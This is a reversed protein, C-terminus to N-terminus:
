WMASVTALPLLRMVNQLCQAGTAAGDDETLRAASFVSTVHGAVSEPWTQALRLLRRRWDGALSVAVDSNSSPRVSLSVNTVCSEPFPNLTCFPNPIPQFPNFPFPIPQSFPYMTTSPSPDKILAPQVCYSCAPLKRSIIRTRKKAKKSRSSNTGNPIAFVRCLCYKSPYNKRKKLIM